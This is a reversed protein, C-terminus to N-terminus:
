NRNELGSPFEFVVTKIIKEGSPLAYTVSTFASSSPVGVKSVNRRSSVKHRFKYSQLFQHVM